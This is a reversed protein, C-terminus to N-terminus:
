NAISQLLIKKKQSFSQHRQDMNLSHVIVDSNIDSMDSALWAFVDMNSQLFSILHHWTAEDLHSSIQVIRTLNAEELPIPLLDKFPEGQQKKLENRM